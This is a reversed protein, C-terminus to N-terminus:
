TYGVDIGFTAGYPALELDGITSTSAGWGASVLADFGALAAGPASEAETGAVPPESGAGRPEVSEARASQSGALLVLAVAM